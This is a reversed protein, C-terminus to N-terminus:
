EGLLEPPIDLSEAIRNLAAERMIKERLAPSNHGEGPRCCCKLCRCLLGVVGSTDEEELATM